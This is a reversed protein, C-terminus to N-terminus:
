YRTANAVASRVVDKSLQSRKGLGVLLVRPTPIRGFTHVLTLEDRKGKVDGLTILQGLTGGLAQDLEAAGGSLQSEDELVVVIAAGAERESLKGSIVELKM